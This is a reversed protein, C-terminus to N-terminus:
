LNAKRKLSERIQIARDKSTHHRVEFLERQKPDRTKRSRIYFRQADIKHSTYLDDQDFLNRIKTGNVLEGENLLRAVSLATEYLSIDNAIIQKTNSHFISYFKSGAMRAADEHISIQWKGVAVGSPTRYENLLQKSELDPDTALDVSVQETIEELKSILKSMENIDAETVTGIGPAGAMAPQHYNEVLDIDSGGGNMLNMINKMRDRDEPSVTTM